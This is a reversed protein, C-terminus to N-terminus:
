FAIFIDSIQNAKYSWIMTSNNKVSVIVFISLVHDWNFWKIDEKSLLCWIKNKNQFCSFQYSNVLILLTIMYLIYLHFPLCFYWQYVKANRIVYALIFNDATQSKASLSRLWENVRSNKKTGILSLFNHNFNKKLCSWEIPFYTRIM